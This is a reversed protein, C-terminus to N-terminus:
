SSDAEDDLARDLTAEDIDGFALLRLFVERRGELHRIAEPPGSPDYTSARYRCFRALDALVVRGAPSNKFAAYAARRRSLGRRLAAIRGDTM